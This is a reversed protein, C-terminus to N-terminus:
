ETSRQEREHRARARRLQAAFKACPDEPDAVPTFWVFDFPLSEAGFREAYAMPARAEETVEVLALSVIRAKPAFRRLHFPVGRDARAHGTGTILVAGDRGEARAGRRLVDAMHADRATMVTVMPGIMSEPLQGCHSEVIDERMAAAAWEPPPRDLGLAAARETGLAAVGTRGLARITKRPLNAALLPAGGDLAAQAIPQYLAWDPWGTEAWGVAPGIGAADKPHVALHAALAADQDITLMELAIAPARGRAIMRAALWAQIRHHDANDHKEGLLVFRAEALADVITAADVFRGEAPRWIRGVLPHARAYESVWPAGPPESDLGAFAPTACTLASLALFLLRLM